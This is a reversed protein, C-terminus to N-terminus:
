GGGGSAQGSVQLTRLTLADAAQSYTVTVADGLSVGSLLTSLAGTALTVSPGSDGVQVTISTGDPAVATVTGAATTANPYAVATAVLTGYATQRYKVSIPEGAQFQGVLSLLSGYRFGFSQGSIRSRLVSPLVHYRRYRHSFVDPTSGDIWGPGGKSNGAAGGASTGFV